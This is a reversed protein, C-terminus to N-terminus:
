ENNKKDYRIQSGDGEKTIEIVEVDKIKIWSVNHNGIAVIDNVNGHITGTEITDTNKNRWIITDKLKMMYGMENKWIIIDKLKM